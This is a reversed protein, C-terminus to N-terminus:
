EIEETPRASQFTNNSVREVVLVTINDHGGRQKALEVLQQAAENLTPILLLQAIEDSSLAM